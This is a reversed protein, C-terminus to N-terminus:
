RNKLLLYGGVGLAGIMLMNKMDDVGQGVSCNIDWWECKKPENGGDHSHSDFKSEISDRHKKAEQLAIGIDTLQGSIRSNNAIQKEEISDRHKKASKMSDGLSQSNKHLLAIDDGHYSQIINEIQVKNFGKGQGIKAEISDRHIKASKMSDGLSQYNKHLLSIDDGHYSQIIQNIKSDSIGSGSEVKSEISDRHKKASKMSDGINWLNQNITGIERLIYQETTQEFLPYDAHISINDEFSRSQAFPLNPTNPNQNKRTCTDCSM